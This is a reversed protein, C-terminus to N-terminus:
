LEFSTSEWSFQTRRYRLKLTILLRVFLGRVQGTSLEKLTWSNVSPSFRVQPNKWSLVVSSSPSWKTSISSFFSSNLGTTSCRAKGQKIELKKVSKKLGSNWLLFSSGITVSEFEWNLSCYGASQLCEKIKYTSQRCLKWSKLTKQVRRM